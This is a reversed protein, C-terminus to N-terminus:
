GRRHEQEMDKYKTERNNEGGRVNGAKEAWLAFARKRERAIPPSVIRGDETECGEEERATNPFSVRFPHSRKTESVGIKMPGKSPKARFSAPQNGERKEAKTVTIWLERRGKPKPKGTRTKLTKDWVTAVIM